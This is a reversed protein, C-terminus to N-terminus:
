RSGRKRRELYRIRQCAVCYRYGPGRIRINEGALLHGRVCHTKALNRAAVTDGRLINERPLVPRCHHPNSCGEPGNDCVYHDLVHGPPISGVEREYRIAYVTRVREGDWGQAYGDADRCGYWFHCGEPGYDIWFPSDKRSGWKRILGTM